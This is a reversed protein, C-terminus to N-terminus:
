IAPDSDKVDDLDILEKPQGAAAVTPKVDSLYFERVTKQDGNLSGVYSDDKEYKLLMLAPIIIAKCENLTPRGLIINYATLEEVVFFRVIMHQGKGKQGLRIPLEIEGVLHVFGGGFGVLPHSVNHLSDLKYNLKSLCKYKILDSSSGTDILIRGVLQNAVKCEIVVPDDHPRRVKGRDKETILVDPFTGSPPCRDM